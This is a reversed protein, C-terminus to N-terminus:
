ITTIDANQNFPVFTTFMCAYFNDVETDTVLCQTQQARLSLFKLDTSSWTWPRARGLFQRECCGTLRDRSM